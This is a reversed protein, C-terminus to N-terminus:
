IVEAHTDLNLGPVLLDVPVSDAGLEILPGKGIGPGVRPGGAVGFEHGDAMTLVGDLMIMVEVVVNVVTKAGLDVTDAAADGGAETAEMVM